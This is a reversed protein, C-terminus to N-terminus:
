FREASWCSEVDVMSRFVMTWKNQEMSWCDQLELFVGCLDRNLKQLNGEIKTGNNSVLPRYNDSKLCTLLVENVLFWKILYLLRPDPPVSRQRNAGFFFKMSTYLGQDASSKSCGTSESSFKLWECNFYLATSTYCMSTKTCQLQPENFQLTCGRTVGLYHRGFPTHETYKFGRQQRNLVVRQAPQLLVGVVNEAEGGLIQLARARLVANLEPCLVSTLILTLGKVGSDLSLM